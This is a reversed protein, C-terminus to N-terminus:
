KVDAREDKRMENLVDFASLLSLINREQCLTWKNLTVFCADNATFLLVENDEKQKIKLQACLFFLRRRKNEKSTIDVHIKWIIFLTRTHHQKLASTDHTPAAPYSGTLM